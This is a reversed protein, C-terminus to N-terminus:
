RSVNDFSATALVSNDHSNVILGIYVNSAMTITASGVLTWSVGDVSSYATFLNGSRVLRVWYPATFSGGGTWSTTSGINARRLFELGAAPTVNMTAHRADASLTERIMVGAKANSHTNQLSVVRATIQGDGNLNQYVFQFSDATSWIDSGSGRLTFTGNTYSASGVLGVSGVDQSSWGSPLTFQDFREHITTPADGTSTAGGPIYVSSGITAGGTGHRPTPMSPLNRWSNSAPDYEESSSITGCNTANGEGGFVQIHGNLLGVAHGGRATLMPAATSWLNTAPDYVEVTKMPSCTASSGARGGIVYFKGNLAAGTVHDRATPLPPLPTWSDTSPDYVTFDNVAAGDRLGGAAYIKGNIVAVAMAARASPLPAVFSWTNTTPDYRQVTNVSPSPWSTVGGLIYLFGGNAAIGIHDLAVGQYSARSSWTHSAPDFVLVANTRSQSNSGGVVYVQNNLAAVSVEQTAVPLSTETTWASSTSQAFSVGFVFKLFLAEGCLLLAYKTLRLAHKKHWRTFLKKSNEMKSSQTRQLKFLKIM